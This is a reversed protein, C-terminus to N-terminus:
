EDITVRIKGRAIQSHIREIINLQRHAISKQEPLNIFGGIRALSDSLDRKNLGSGQLRKLQTEAELMKLEIEAKKFADRELNYQQQLDLLEEQLQKRKEDPMLLELKAKKIKELLQQYKEFEKIEPFVQAEGIVPKIKMREEPKVIQAGYLRKYWNEWEKEYEKTAKLTDEILLPKERKTLGLLNGLFGIPELPTTRIREKLNWVMAFFDQINAKGYKAFEYVNKLAVAWLSEAKIKIEEQIDKVEKLSVIVDNKITAGLERFNSILEEVDQNALQLMSAAGRGGISMLTDLYVGGTDKIRKLIEFGLDIGRKSKLDDMTFGLRQFHAILEQNGKIAAQQSRTVREFFAVIEYLGIGTQQAVYNLEQLQDTSLGTRKSLNYINDAFQIVEETLAGFGYIGAAVGIYEKIKSAFTVVQSGAKRLGYEFESADLGLRASLHAIISM